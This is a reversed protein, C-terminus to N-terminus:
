AGLDSSTPTAEEGDRDVRSTSVDELAALYQEAEDETITGAAHEDNWAGVAARLARRERRASSLRDTLSRRRGPMHM